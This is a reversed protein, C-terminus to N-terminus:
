ARQACDRPSFGVRGAVLDYVVEVNQMQFSGLVAGPGGGGADGGSVGDDMRQFLLCKVVFSDRVATVPYYSSLKPLALRAGGALHLSIPPLEDDEAACPARACPVSFCLDFGTRAEMDRSRGYPVAAALSALLSAYFPDPLHTYTTGTDVLVGGDGRPDVGGLSPPAAAITSAPDGLSVGELGIYYFNPYTVSKLMPTFIFGGRDTALSLALDGMVLPSTVNPNRAFRFGLFCHSFGKGLFGLQSPLSLTGKGFGAIGIPERVSSGVCGFSFGPFEV